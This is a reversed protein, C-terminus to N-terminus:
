QQMLSQVASEEGASQKARSRKSGPIANEESGGGAVGNPNTGRAVALLAKWATKTLRRVRESGLIAFIAAKHADANWRIPKEPM